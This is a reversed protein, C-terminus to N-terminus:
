RDSHGSTKEAGRREPLSNEYRVDQEGMGPGKGERNRQECEIRM